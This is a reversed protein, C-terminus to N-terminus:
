IIKEEYRGVTGDGYIKAKGGSDGQTDSIRRRQQVESCYKRLLISYENPTINEGAFYPYLLGTLPRPSGSPELFNLNGSEM